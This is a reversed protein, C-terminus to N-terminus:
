NSQPMARLWEDVLAIAEERTSVLCAPREAGSALVRVIRVRLQRPSDETWARLILTEGSGSTGAISVTLEQWNEDLPDAHDLEGSSLTDPCTTALGHAWDRAGTGM